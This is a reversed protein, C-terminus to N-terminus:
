VRIANFSKFTVVQDWQVNFSLPMLRIELRRVSADNLLQESL